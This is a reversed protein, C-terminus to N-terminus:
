GGDKCPVFSGDVWVPVCSTPDPPAAEREIMPAGGMGAADDSQGAEVGADLPTAVLLGGADCAALMVLAIWHFRMM